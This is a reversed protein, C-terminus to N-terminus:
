PLSSLNFAFLLVLEIVLSMGSKIFEDELMQLDKVMSYVTVSFLLILCKAKSFSMIFTTDYYEGLIVNLM